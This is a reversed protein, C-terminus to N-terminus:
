LRKYIFRPVAYKRGNLVGGLINANISELSDKVKQVAARRTREAFIVIIVGDCLPTMLLTDPYSNVPPSDYIVWDFDKEIAEKTNQSIGSLVNLTDAGPPLIGTTILKVNDFSTQKIIDNLETKGKLFDSFGNKQSQDFWDHLKANRHNADILLVRTKGGFGLTIALNSALTSTGEERNASTVMISKLKKNERHQLVNVKIRMVEDLLAQNIKM